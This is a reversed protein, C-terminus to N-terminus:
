QNENPTPELIGAEAQAGHLSFTATVEGRGDCIRCQANFSQAWIHIRRHELDITWCGTQFTADTPLRTQIAHYVPDFDIPHPGAADFWWYGDSCGGGNGSDPDYTALISETGMDVIRAPKLPMFTNGWVQLHYIERYQDGRVGVLIFKYDETSFTSSVASSGTFHCSLQKIPYSALTGLDTVKCESTYDKETVTHGDLQCGLCFDNPEDRHIPDDTWYSLPHPAPIDDISGKGTVGIRRWQACVPLSLSLLLLCCLLRRVCKM